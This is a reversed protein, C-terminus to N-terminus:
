EHPGGVGGPGGPRGLASAASTGNYKALNAIVLSAIPSGLGTVLDYGPVARYRANSGSAIDHFSGAPLSYLAPLTQGPGDLSNKGMQARVGDTIAILAAWQPAGASTGGVAIPQDATGHVLDIVGVGTFPDGVYSVDPVTRANRTVHFGDNVQYAPEAYL